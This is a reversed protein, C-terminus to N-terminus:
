SPYGQPTKYGSLMVEITTDSANNWRVIEGPSLVIIGRWSFADVNSGINFACISHYGGSPGLQLTAFGGSAGGDSVMDASTVIWLLGTDGNAVGLLGSPAVSGLQFRVPWQPWEESM